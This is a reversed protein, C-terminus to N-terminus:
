LVPGHEAELSEDYSRIPHLGARHVASAYASGKEGSNRPSSQETSRKDVTVEGFRGDGEGGDIVQQDVTTTQCGIATTVSNVTSHLHKRSLTLPRGKGSRAGFEIIIGVERLFTALRRLRSSLARPTRPWDRSTKVSDTVLRQLESLLDKCTGEWTRGDLSEMLTSITAGIPDSEVTEHVAEARNGLYATMFAGEPLGLGLEAATAWAAFDAM